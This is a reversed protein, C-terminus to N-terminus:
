FLNVQQTEAARKRSRRQTKAAPKKAAKKEGARPALEWPKGDRRFTCGADRMSLLEDMTPEADGECRALLRGSQSLVEFM